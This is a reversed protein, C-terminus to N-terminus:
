EQVGLYPPLKYVSNKQSHNMRNYIDVLKDYQAKTEIPQLIGEQRDKENMGGTQLVEEMNATFRWYQLMEKGTVGGNDSCAWFLFVFLPLVLWQKITAMKSKTKTMM